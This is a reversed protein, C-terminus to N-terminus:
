NSSATIMKHMSEFNDLATKTIRLTEPKLIGYGAIAHDKSSATYGYPLSWFAAPFFDETPTLIEKPDLKSVVEVKFGIDRALQEFSTSRLVQDVGQEITHCFRELFSRYHKAEERMLATTAKLYRQSQESNSKNALSKKLSITEALIQELTSNPQKNESLLNAFYHAIQLRLKECADRHNQFEIYANNFEGRKVEDILEFTKKANDLGPMKLRKKPNDCQVKHLTALEEDILIFTPIRGNCLKRYEQHTVSLHGKKVRGYRKGIILVGMHCSHIDTLCSDVAPRRPDYGIDHFESMVPEYSLDKKLMERVAVRVEKLDYITSSIFVRPKM